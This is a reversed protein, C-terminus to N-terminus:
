RQSETSNNKKGTSCNKGGDLGDNSQNLIQFKNINIRGTKYKSTVYFKDRKPFKSNRRCVKKSLQALSIPGHFENQENVGRVTISRCRTNYV